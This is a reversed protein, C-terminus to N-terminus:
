DSEITDLFIPLQKDLHVWDDARLPNTDGDDGFAKDFLVVAIFEFALATSEATVQNEKYLSVPISGLLEYFDANEDEPLLCVDVTDADEDYVFRPMVNYAIVDNILDDEDAYGCDSDFWEDYVELMKDYLTQEHVSELYGNVADQLMRISLDALKKRIDNDSTRDQIISSIVLGCGYVMNAILNELSEKEEDELILGDGIFETQKSDSKVHFEM